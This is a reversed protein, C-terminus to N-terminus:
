PRLPRKLLHIQLNNKKIYKSQPFVMVEYHAKGKGTAWGQQEKAPWGQDIWYVEHHPQYSRDAIPSFECWLSNSPFKEELLLSAM